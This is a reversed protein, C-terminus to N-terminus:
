NEGLGSAGCSLRYFILSFVLHGSRIDVAVSRFIMVILASAWLPSTSVLVGYIFEEFGVFIMERCRVAPTQVDYELTYLSYNRMFLGIIGNVIRVSEELYVRKQFKHYM